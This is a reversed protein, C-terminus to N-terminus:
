ILGKDKALWEPVAFTAFRKSGKLKEDRMDVQSKPLWCRTTGDNIRYARETETVLEAELEFVGAKSM